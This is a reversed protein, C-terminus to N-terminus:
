RRLRVHIMDMGLTCWVEGSMVQCSQVARPLEHPQWSQGGDATTLMQARGQLHGGADEIPGLFAVGSTLSVFRVADLLGAARSPQQAMRIWTRGGDDTRILVSTGENWGIAWGHDPDLFFLDRFEQFQGGIDPPLRGDQWSAGGDSTRLLTRGGLWGTKSNLFFLVDPYGLSSVLPDKRFLWASGGTTTTGFRPGDIASVAVCGTRADFFRLHVPLGPLDSSVTRWTRGGDLTRRFHNLPENNTMWALWGDQPTTFWFAPEIDVGYTEVRHVARWTRGGDATHVVRTYQSVHGNAVAIVSADAWGVAPTLFQFDGLEYGPPCEACRGHVRGIPQESSRAQPLLTALALLAITCGRIM